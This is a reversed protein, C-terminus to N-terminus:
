INGNWALTSRPAIAIILCEANGLNNLTMDLVCISNNTLCQLEEFLNILHLLILKINLFMILLIHKCIM